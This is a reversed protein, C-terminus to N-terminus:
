KRGMQHTQSQHPTESVGAPLGSRFSNESGSESFRRFSERGTQNSGEWNSDTVLVYSECDLQLQFRGMPLGAYTIKAWDGPKDGFLEALETLAASELVESLMDEWYSM